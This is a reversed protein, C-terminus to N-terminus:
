QKWLDVGLSRKILESIDSAGVDSESISVIVPSIMKELKKKLRAPLKKYYKEDIIVIGVDAEVLCSEFKQSYNNEDIEWVEKIGGLQFGLTFDKGGMVIIKM